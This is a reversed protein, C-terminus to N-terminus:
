WRTLRVRDGFKQKLRAVCGESLGASTITLLKVDDLNPSNLLADAGEDGMGGNSSLDLVELKRLYPSEALARAGDLGIANFSLSLWKLGAMHPSSALVHAGGDGVRNYALDLRVLGALNPANFLLSSEAASLWNHGLSLTTLRSAGSWNTLAHLSELNLYNNGLDLRRLRALATARTLALVGKRIGNHRVRLTHLGTLHPSGLLVELGADHLSNGALDLEHIAGLVPSSAVKNWHKTTGSLYIGHIRASRLWGVAQEQFARSQFNRMTVFVQLLGGDARCREVQERLAEPCNSFIKEILETETSGPEPRAAGCQLRILTAREAQGQEELWDAYILRAVPEDPSEIIAQLIGDEDVPGVGRALPPPPAQEVPAPQHMSTRLGDLRGFNQTNYQEQIAKQLEPQIANGYLGVERLRGLQKSEGLAWGGKDGILNSALNLAHLESMTPANALAIAGADTIANGALRLCRLSALHPAESLAITGEDGIRNHLLELVVLGTWQSARALEKAGEDGIGNGELLLAQLRPWCRTDALARAGDPGLDNRELNIATLETLSPSSALAILGEDRIRARKLGLYRLQALRPWGALLRAGGPGITNGHLDLWTLQRIHPSRVLLRLGEETIHCYRLDLEAVSGLGPWNALRPVSRLNTFGIRRVPHRFVEAGAADLAKFSDFVVHEPFGRLFQWTVGTLTPRDALWRKRHEYYLSRAQSDLGSRQPDEEPLRASRCQLRIFQAREPQGNQECWDAYALRPADDEYNEWVAQALQASETAANTM